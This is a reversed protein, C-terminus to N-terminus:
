RDDLLVVIEGARFSLENDEAAVFDYIARVKREKQSSPLLSPPPFLSLPLLSLPPSPPSLPLLIFLFIFALALVLLIFLFIFALALVLLIFLFIFALALVLLIFLLFQLEPLSM